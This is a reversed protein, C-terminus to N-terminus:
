EDELIVFNDNYHAIIEFLKELTEDSYDIRKVFISFGKNLYDLVENYKERSYEENEFLEEINDTYFYKLLHNDFEEKTSIKIAKETDSYDDNGSVDLIGNIITKYADLVWDNKCEQEDFDRYAVVFNSSSSNTVFDSRIKM